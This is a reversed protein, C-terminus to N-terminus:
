CAFWAQLQVCEAQGSYDDQGAAPEVQLWRLTPYKTASTPTPTPPLVPSLVPCLRNLRRAPPSAPQSLSSLELIIIHSPRLTLGNCCPYASSVSQRVLVGFDTPRTLAHGCRAGEGPPLERACRGMSENTETLQECLLRGSVHM